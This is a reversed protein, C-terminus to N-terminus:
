QIARQLREKNAAFWSRAFAMQSASGGNAIGAFYDNIDDSADAALSTNLYAGLTLAAKPECSAALLRLLHIKTTDDSAEQLWGLVKSVTWPRPYRSALFIEAQELHHDGYKAERMSQGVWEHRPPRSEVQKIIDDEAFLAPGPLTFLVIVLLLPKM